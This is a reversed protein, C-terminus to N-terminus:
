SNLDAVSYPYLLITHWQGITHLTAVTSAMTRSSSNLHHRGIRFLRIRWLNRYHVYLLTDAASSTLIKTRRTRETSDVHCSM